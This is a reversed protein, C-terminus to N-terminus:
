EDELENKLMEMKKLQKKGIFKVAKQKSSKSKNSEDISTLTSPLHESDLVVREAVRLKASRARRNKVIEDDTPIQARKFLPNWPSLSPTTDQPMFKSVGSISAKIEDQEYDDLSGTKMVRKVRRDELSHYSIIVLRGLPRLCSHATLLAEDLAGMEDNVAIRLAQFCRALVKPRQAFSTIHSIVRELQGTTHLPRASIIERAIQRSRSEEGFNYLINALREASYDNIITSATLSSTSLNGLVEGKSMRMDLPGDAGFAFGRSPENIQHSSVGLDMLIGDVVPFGFSSGRNAALKSRKTVIDAINRFNSQFIELKGEEIYRKCVHSAKAIADPDQDLGIVSGGAELIARTHGGGGLTCDVFVNGPLIQLYELCEDRLVPIHYDYNQDLEDIKISKLCGSNMKSFINKLRFSNSRFLSLSIIMVSYLKLM